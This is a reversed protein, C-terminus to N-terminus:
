FDCTIFLPHKGNHWLNRFIQNSNFHFPRNRNRGVPINLIVEPPPGCIKTPIHRRPNATGYKVFRNQTRAPFLFSFSAFAMGIQQSQKMLFHQQMKRPNEWKGRVPRNPMIFHVWCRRCPTICELTEDM